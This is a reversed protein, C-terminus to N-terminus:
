FPVMGGEITTWHDATSVLEERLFGTFSRDWFPGLCTYAAIAQQTELSACRRPVLLM